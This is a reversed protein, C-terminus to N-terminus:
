RIGRYYVAAMPGLGGNADLPHGIPEQGSRIRKPLAAPFRPLPSAPVDEGKPTRTLLPHPFAVEIQGGRRGAEGGVQLRQPKGTGSLVQHHLFGQELQPVM